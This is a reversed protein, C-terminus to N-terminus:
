TTDPAMSRVRTADSGDAIGSLWLAEGTRMARDEAEGDLILSAVCGLTPQHGVVLVTGGADLGGIAALVDEPEVGSALRRDTAFTRDLAQATQQARLAPSVVIRCDAPLRPLLWLAMAQAQRLGRPTLMRSEDPVGPAAECHRWLIVDM